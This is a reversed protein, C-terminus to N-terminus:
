SKASKALRAFGFALFFLGVLNLVDTVLSLNASFTITGFNILAKEIVVVTIFVLGIGLFRLSRGIAGGFLRTSAWLNYFVGILIAVMLGHILINPEFQM